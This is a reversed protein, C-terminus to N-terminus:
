QGLKPVKLEPENDDETDDDIDDPDEINGEGEKTIIETLFANTNEQIDRLHKCLNKLYSEGKEVSAEITKVQQGDKKIVANISSM